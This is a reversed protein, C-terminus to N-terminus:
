QRVATFTGSKMVYGTPSSEDVQDTIIVLNGIISNEGVKMGRLIITSPGSTFQAPFVPGAFEWSVKLETATEQYALPGGSIETGGIGRGNKQFIMPTTLGASENPRMTFLWQGKSKAGTEPLNLLFVIFLPMVVIGILLVQNVNKQKM